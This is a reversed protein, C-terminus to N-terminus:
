RMQPLVNAYYGSSRLNSISACTHYKAAAAILAALNKTYRAFVNMRFFRPLAIRLVIVVKAGNYPSGGHM